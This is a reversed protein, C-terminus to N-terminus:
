FASQAKQQDQVYQFLRVLWQVPTARKCKFLFHDYFGPSHITQAHFPAKIIVVFILVDTCIYTQRDRTILLMKRRRQTPLRQIYKEKLPIVTLVKAAM